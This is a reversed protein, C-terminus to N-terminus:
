TKDGISKSTSQGPGVLTVESSVSGDAKQNGLDYNHQMQFRAECYKFDDSELSCM